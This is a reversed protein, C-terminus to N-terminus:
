ITKLIWKKYAQLLVETKVPPGPCCSIYRFPQAIDHIVSTCSGYTNSFIGSINISREYPLNNWYLFNKLHYVRQALWRGRYILVM